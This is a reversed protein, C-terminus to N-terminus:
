FNLTSPSPSPIFSSYGDFFAIDQQIVNHFLAVQIDYLMKKGVLQFCYTQIASFLGLLLTVIIYVVIYSCVFTLFLDLSSFPFSLSSLPVYKHFANMDVKIVQDLINGQLNPILLDAIASM